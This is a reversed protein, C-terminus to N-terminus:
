LDGRPTWFQFYRAFIQVELLSAIIVGIAYAVIDLIDFTVGFLELGYYQAVESTTMVLFVICAKVYWHRLFPMSSENMALLFYVAFPLPRITHM